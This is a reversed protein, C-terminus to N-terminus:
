KQWLIKNGLTEEKILSTFDYDVAALKIDYHRDIITQKVLELLMNTTFEKDAIWERHKEKNVDLQVLPIQGSKLYNELSLIHNHNGVFVYSFPIIDGHNTYDVNRNKVNSTIGFGTYTYGRLIYFKDKVRSM